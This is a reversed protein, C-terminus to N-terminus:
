SIIQLDGLQLALFQLQFVLDLTYPLSNRHGGRSLLSRQDQPIAVEGMPLVASTYDHCMHAVKLM